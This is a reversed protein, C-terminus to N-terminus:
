EHGEVPPAPEDGGVTGSRRASPAPGRRFQAGVLRAVTRLLGDRPATAPRAPAAPQGLHEDCLAALQALNQTLLDRPSLRLGHHAEIRAIVQMSQLSHGGLDFFRDYAGVDTVGLVDKWIDALAIEMRSAPARSESRGRSWPAPLPLRNRALKGTPTLPFADLVIFDSPIMHEPLKQRLVRQLDEIELRTDPLSVLYAILQPGGRQHDSTVVVSEKVAPHQALVAEIEGLEIRFGRVKVQHDTRGLYELNGDPRYRARDGTRYLRSTPIDAFPDRIFRAATLDPQHLYGQALGDGGIYLEGPVGVPSPQLYADLVYIRTNDIPRGIPPDPRAASARTDHWTSDGSAESSGYLNLLIRDPVSAYFRDCLEKTLAEGSTVWLRLDPVRRALDRFAGLLVRLLSPVLVIRSVHHAALTELLRGPDKVVEDPIIVTRIGQLLPGFLEWVSDVFSLSTKQCCVESPAFPFTRWMWACRNVAGRHLGVVGKPRGTSGSTYLVYAANAPTPGGTPNRDPQRGIAERDADLCVVAAHTSPLEPRCAEQTVLVPPRADELMLELRDRPYAPDLPLYAGGAKLIGLIGVVADLSRELCIGVPVDPGVGLGRLYHALRNAERNLERYTLRMGACEMAVADPTREVQVEFLQHLGVDRPNDVRTLNWEVLVQRREAAELLPLHSVRRDPETVAGALLTEFHRLMRTVTPADFLDRSYELEARLGRPTEEVSLSLDFKATRRDLEVPTVTLGPLALASGPANQLIFMTQFVPSYALSREPQLAEVLTEFPLDQHAYAGLAVERVRRLLERFTPAGTLDTRLVLTNVFFGILGETETRTRGAIATGVVIDEQGAYRYLLTKFAALLTMFLTVGERRSQAKLQELLPSPLTVTETAGEFTQAAPRPRDTPLELLAPAGALRDRWYALGAELAPGTLQQRQWVAYDAYQIPLDPLPHPQGTAYTGYLVSLERALIGLSWGDAAIHHLVLLLVHDTDGFRFLRARLMLDREFDFPGDAEQNVLLRMAADREAEPYTEIDIVPLDFPSPASIVQVPVGDPAVLTTHLVEHRAVVAELARRLANVDLAGQLRVAVPINYVGSQPEYQDLFWLRHQAFSLPCPTSSGRRPIHLDHRPAPDARLLREELIRREGPTLKSIERRLDQVDM